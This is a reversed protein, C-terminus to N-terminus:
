FLTNMGKVSYFRAERNRPDVSRKVIMHDAGLAVVRAISQRPDLPFAISAFRRFTICILRLPLASTICIYHM